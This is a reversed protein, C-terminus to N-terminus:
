LDGDRRQESIQQRCFQILPPLHRELVYWVTEMDVRDYEHVLLNRFAVVKPWPIETHRTRFEISLRNAAEGIVTLERLVASQLLKRGLFASQGGEAVFEFISEAATLIDQLYAPDRQM